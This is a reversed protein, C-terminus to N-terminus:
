GKRGLIRDFISVKVPPLASLDPIQQDYMYPGIQHEVPLYGNLFREITQYGTPVFLAVDFGILSLFATLIADELTAAEERTNVCVLKPNKKTFDFAQLMRLLKKDMNLVTAVVTYETGNEYTGRIMRADLMQQLKDFIHDQVSERLLGFPYQRDQKVVDRRIRGSRVCKVALQQYPNGHSPSVLQQPAYLTDGTVLLKVKQWYAMMNGKEVGCIKAFIVPMSVADGEASFNPRYRLEQDWLIFIEDYTTTLTIANARSFQQARYMGSGSYLLTDLDREAHAAATSMQLGANDRPFKMVPLSEPGKLDLLLGDEVMGPQDLNPCCLLVDVPLRALFRVYLAEYPQRCAGMLVFAPVNNEKWGHFLKAHYRGITVLLCVATVMLRNLNPEDKAAFEMVQTFARQMLRTLEPRDGQPLNTALDVTMEEWSDYHGRRRIGSLAEPEPQPIPADVALVTRGTDSLHRYFQYLENVYTLRDQAGTLRIFANYYFNPDDGRGVIPTLMQTFAPEKLWANTCMERQPPLFHESPVVKAKPRPAPQPPRVTRQPAPPVPRPQTPQVTRPQPATQVTRPAPQAPRASPQPMAAMEKRLAKLSFGTPFAAGPMALLQSQAGKPDAKLYAQDGQPELLLIDAGLANLMSLMALEHRTIAPSVCLVKPADDQGLLPVLREFRYYLWCMLKTYLNRTVAAPKGERLLADYQGVLAQAFQARNEPTMRPMWKALAREAFQATPEFDTGLTDTLYGLQTSDPNQIGEDIVVGRQRALEHVQWVGAKIADSWAAARVFYPGHPMRRSLPLSYDSLLKLTSRTFM